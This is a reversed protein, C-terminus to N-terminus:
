EKKRVDVEFDSFSVRTGCFPCKGSKLEATDKIPKIMTMHTIQKGCKGCVINVSM